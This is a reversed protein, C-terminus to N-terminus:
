KTLIADVASKLEEGQKGRSLITGDPGFVIIHPIGSIGYIDTPLSQANLIVPWKIELQEMAVETNAVEDWVAVGLVKLGNDKYKEQIEKIVPIERRCPGCWSAWFDVLVYDGKGVYDSLKVVGGDATPIEFDTFMKGEGTEELKQFVDLQKSIRVSKAYNAPALALASDLQAKNEFKYYMTQVFAYYGLPNNKNAEYVNDWGALYKAFQEEKNLTSDSSAEKIQNMALELADNTKTGSAKGVEDITINGPELIFQVRGKALGIRAVISSDIEGTFVVKMDQVLASDLKESSDYDLLYAMKGDNSDNDLNVTVSYKNGCSVMAVTALAMFFLKKM